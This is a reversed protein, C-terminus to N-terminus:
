SNKKSQNILITYANLLKDLEQSIQISEPDIYGKNSVTETMKNRLLEIQNLLNKESNMM